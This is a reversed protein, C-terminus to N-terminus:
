ENEGGKLEIRGAEFIKELSYKRIPLGNFSIDIQALPARLNETTQINLPNVWSLDRVYMTYTKLSKIGKEDTYYDRFEKNYRHAVGFHKEAYHWFTLSHAVVVCFQIWYGKNKLMLAFPSDDGWGDINELELYKQADKGWIAYSYIPHKTRVFGHTLAYTGIAGTKSNKANRTDFGKGHCFDWTYTPFILTGSEGVANKLANLIKELSFDDHAKSYVEYFAALDSSFHITDGQKIQLSAIIEDISPIKM